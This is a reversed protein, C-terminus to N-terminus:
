DSAGLVNAPLHHCNLAISQVFTAKTARPHPFWPFFMDVILNEDGDHVLQRNKGISWPQQAESNDM